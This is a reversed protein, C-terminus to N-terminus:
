SEDYPLELLSDAVIKMEQFAQEVMDIWAERTVFTKIVGIPVAGIREPLLDYARIAVEKRFAAGDPSALWEVADGGASQVAKFGVRYGAAVAEKAFGSTQSRVLLGAVGLLAFVGAVIFPWEM